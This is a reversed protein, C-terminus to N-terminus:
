ASQENTEGKNVLKDLGLLEFPKWFETMYGEPVALLQSPDSCTRCINLFTCSGYKGFCNNENKPFTGSALRADAKWRATDAEVRQVWERTDNIWEELLPFQHAVPVFRFGSHIKKHVLAADVWVQTLKPFFLGAGFQYGKVQSDSYWSEIYSSQFMSTTSYATTTKHELAVTEGNFSIVKDLRGIYWVNEINPLPVAFPQECALLEAEQLMKWRQSIYSIYMEYAISPTRAGFTATQDVDLEAPMGQEEWTELFSAIGLKALESQSDAKKAFTWVADMGSHWSLGFTLPLATGASRWGMEHRLFYKRPCDKYSSLMTNDYYRADNKGNAPQTM